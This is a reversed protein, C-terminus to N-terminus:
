VAAAAAGVAMKKAVVFGIAGVLAVGFVVPVAIAVANPGKDESESMTQFAPNPSENSMRVDSACIFDVLPEKDDGTTFSGITELFHVIQQIHAKGHVGHLTITTVNTTDGVSLTCHSSNGAGKAAAMQQRLFRRSEATEEGEQVVREGKWEITANIKSMGPIVSLYKSLSTVLTNVAEVQEESMGAVKLDIVVVPLEEESTTTAPVAPAKTPSLTATTPVGAPITDTPIVASAQQPGHALLLFFAACVGLMLSSAKKM